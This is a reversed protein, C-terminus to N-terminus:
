FYQLFLYLMNFEVIPTTNHLFTLIIDNPVGPIYGLPAGAGGGGPATSGPVM